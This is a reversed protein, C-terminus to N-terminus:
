SALTEKNGANDFRRLVWAVTGIINFDYVDQVDPNASKLCPVGKEADLVYHRMFLEGGVLACIIQGYDAHNQRHFIVMDDKHIGCDHLYDEAATAIFMDDNGFIIAPFRVYAEAMDDLIDEVFEKPQGKCELKTKDM